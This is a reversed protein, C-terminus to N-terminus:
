IFRPQTKLFLLGSHGKRSNPKGKRNIKTVRDSKGESAFGELKWRVKDGFTQVLKRVKSREPNALINYLHSQKDLKKKSIKSKKKCKELM